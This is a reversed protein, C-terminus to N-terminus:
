LGIEADTLYCDPELRWNKIDPDPGLFRFNGKCLDVWKCKLCRKDAFKSKNRLKQLVPEDPNTWIQKFTKQTTNGLSYNRWFQDAYVSGDWGVSAIGQGIRNGGNALLLRKQQDISEGQEQMKILLYPGDAHNGVTLVEDLTGKSVFDATRELIADMVERTAAHSVVQAEIDKARGSRILHYFCVRRIGNDKCIDFVAPVQEKNTNTITFRLGMRLNAKRCNEFGTMTAKFCGSTQRFRNHFEEPGDISIGVYSVNAEAIKQATDGDILTGNTSIVTRLGIRKAEALLEFLDPRLLPEGGSFLVVPANAEVLDALLKKAQATSLEVDRRASDSAAYCHLCRLNCRATCNYVVVPGASESRQYRLHDSQGALGCYLKSVNIM